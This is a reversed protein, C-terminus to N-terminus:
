AELEVNSKQEPARLKVFALLTLVLSLLWLVIPTM